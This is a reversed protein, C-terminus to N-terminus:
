KKTVIFGNITIDYKLVQVDKFQEELESIGEELEEDSFKLLSSSFRKRISEYWLAKDMEAPETDTVFRCKLGKSKILPMMKEEGSATFAQKAAKFWPFTANPPYETIICVGDEPLYEALRSFVFDQDNFHHVCFNMLVKDLPYKSKTAFFDEATSQITIAGNKEAVNLMEQFPDICVVPKTMGLDAHIMLSLQATGGGVDVLQDDQAFPVFRRIFNVKARSEVEYLKDYHQALTKYHEATIIGRTLKIM